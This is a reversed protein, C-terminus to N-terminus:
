EEMIRGFKKRFHLCITVNEYVEKYNYSVEPAIYWDNAIFGEYELGIKFIVYSQHVEYEYGPGGFLELGPLIEYGFFATFVQVNERPVSTGGVEVFYQGLELEYILGANIRPTFSYKYDFGALGIFIFRSELELEHEYSNPIMVYGNIFSIAHKRPNKKFFTERNRPNSDEEQAFGQFGLFLLFVFLPPIWFEKKM